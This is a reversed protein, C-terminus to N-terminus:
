ATAGYGLAADAIDWPNESPHYVYALEDADVDWVKRLVPMDRIAKLAAEAREARALAAELQLARLEILEMTNTIEEARGRQEAAEILADTLEKAVEAHIDYSERGITAGALLWADEARQRAASVADETM